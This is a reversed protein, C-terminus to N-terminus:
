PGFDGANFMRQAEPGGGLEVLGQAGVVAFELRDAVQVPGRGVEELAQALGKSGPVGTMLLIRGEFGPSVAVGVREGLEHLAVGSGAFVAVLEVRDVWVAGLLARLGASSTPLPGESGAADGIADAAV